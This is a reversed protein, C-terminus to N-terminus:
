KVGSSGGSLLEGIFGGAAGSAVGACHWPTPLDVNRRVRVLRCRASEATQLTFAVFLAKIRRQRCQMYYPSFAVRHQLQLMFFPALQHPQLAATMM